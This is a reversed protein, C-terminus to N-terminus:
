EEADRPDFLDAFINQFFNSLSAITEKKVPAIKNEEFIIPQTTRVLAVDDPGVVVERDYLKVRGEPIQVSEIVYEAANDIHKTDMLGIYIQYPPNPDNEVLTKTCYKM